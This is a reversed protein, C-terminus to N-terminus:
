AAGEEATAAWELGLGALAALKDTTLKARVVTRAMQARGLLEQFAAELGWAGADVFQDM